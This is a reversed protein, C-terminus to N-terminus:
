LRFYCELQSRYRGLAAYHWFPGWSAQASIRQPEAALAEASNTLPERESASAPALLELVSGLDIPDRLIAILKVDPLRRHIREAAESSHLYIISAEGIAREHTVGSFLAEYSEWDTVTHRERGM